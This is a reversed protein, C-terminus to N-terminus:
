KKRSLFIVAVVAAVMIVALLVIVITKSDGTNSVAGGYAFASLVSMVAIIAMLDLASIFKLLRNM